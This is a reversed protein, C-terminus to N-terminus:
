KSLRPFNNHNNKIHFKHEDRKWDGVPVVSKSEILMKDLKELLLSKNALCASLAEPSLARIIQEEEYGTLNVIHAVQQKIQFELIDL